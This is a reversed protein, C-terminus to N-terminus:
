FCCFLYKEIYGRSDANFQIMVFFVYKLFLLFGLGLVAALLALVKGTWVWGVLFRLVSYLSLKLSTGGGLTGADGRPNIAGYQIPVLHCSAPIIQAVTVSHRRFPM